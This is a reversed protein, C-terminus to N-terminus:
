LVQRCPQLDLVISSFYSFRQSLPVSPLVSPAPKLLVQHTRFLPFMGTVRENGDKDVLDVKAKLHLAELYSVVVSDVKGSVKVEPRPFYTCPGEIQWEDGAIRKVGNDDFDALAELKIAKTAPVM